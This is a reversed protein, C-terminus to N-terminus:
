HIGGGTQILGSMKLYLYLSGKGQGSDTENYNTNLLIIGWDRLQMSKIYPFMSGTDMNENMLLRRSWQGARM